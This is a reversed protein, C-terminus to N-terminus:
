NKMVLNLFCYMEVYECFVRLAGMGPWKMEKNRSCLGLKALLILAVVLNADM